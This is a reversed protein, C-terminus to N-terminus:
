KGEREARIKKVAHLVSTHDRGGFIRGILPFSLDNRERYLAYMCEHRAKVVYRNRHIGTIDSWTVGPYNKLTEFVIERVPRKVESISEIEAEAEMVKNAAVSGIAKVKEWAKVHSDFYTSVWMWMPQEATWAKKAPKEAPPPVVIEVEEKVQRKPSFLRQRRLLHTIHIQRELESVRVIENMIGSREETRTTTTGMGTRRFWLWISGTPYEKRRSKLIMEDISIGKAILRFGKAHLKDGEIEHTTHWNKM